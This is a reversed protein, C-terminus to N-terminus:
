EDLREYAVQMADTTLGGVNCEMFASVFKDREEATECNEEIVEICLDIMEDWKYTISEDINKEINKIDSM